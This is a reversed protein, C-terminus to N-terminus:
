VRGRTWGTSAARGLLRPARPAGALALAPVPEDVLSRVSGPARKVLWDSALVVQVNQYTVAAAGVLLAAALVPGIWRPLANLVLGLLVGVACSVFATMYFSYRMHWFQLCSRGATVLVAALLAVVLCGAIAVAASRTAMSLSRGFIAVGLALLIALLSGGAALYRWAGIFTPL